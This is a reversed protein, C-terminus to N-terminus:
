TTAKTTTTLGMADAFSELERRIDGTPQYVIETVGNAVLDDIKRRVDGANWAASVNLDTASM